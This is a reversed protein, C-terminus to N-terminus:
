VGSQWVAGRSGDTVLCCFTISYEHSLEVEVRMGGVDAESTVPWCLLIPPTVQLVARM